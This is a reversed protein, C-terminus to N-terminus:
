MHVKAHVHTWTHTHTCTCAHMHLAGGYGWIGGGKQEKGPTAPNGFSYFVIFVEVFWSLEIRNLSKPSRCKGASMYTLNSTCTPTTGDCIANKVKPSLFTLKTSRHAELYLNKLKWVLIQYVININVISIIKSRRVVKQGKSIVALIFVFTCFKVLIDIKDCLWWGYNKKFHAKLHEVTDRCIMLQCKVGIVSGEHHLHM